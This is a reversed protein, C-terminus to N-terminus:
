FKTFIATGQQLTRAIQENEDMRTSIKDIDGVLMQTSEAAGNVGEAGEEIADTITRISGAIENMEKKLADTKETFDNMTEEIYTAKEKYEVGSEVFNEFEPLISTNIYEVVNNANDALNYVANTVIANIDQIRSATDRSTEALQRIEDAVVAFGKGAEGARAAEISANLALLNTKSAISL